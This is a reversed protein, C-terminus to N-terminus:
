MMIVCTTLNSLNCEISVILRSDLEIVPHKAKKHSNRLNVEYKTYGKQCASLVCMLLSDVCRCEILVTLTWYAFDAWSRAEGADLGAASGVGRRWV